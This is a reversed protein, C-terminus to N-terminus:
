EFRFSGGCVTSSMRSCAPSPEHCIGANSVMLEVALGVVNRGRKLVRGVGGRGGRPLPNPGVVVISTRTFSPVRLGGEGLTLSIRIPNVLLSVFAVPIM